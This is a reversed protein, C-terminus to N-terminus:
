LTAVGGLFNGMDCYLPPTVFIGSGLTSGGLNYSEGLILVGYPVRIESVM